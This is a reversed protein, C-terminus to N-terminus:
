NSAIFRLETGTTHENPGSIAGRQAGELAPMDKCTGQNRTQGGCPLTNLLARAPEAAGPVSAARPRPAGAGAWM